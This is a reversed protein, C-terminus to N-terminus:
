LSGPRFLLRNATGAPLGSLRNLTGDNVIADRVATPSASPNGQLFRAAVGAVHSSAMSTGSITRTATDSTHWASTIGSGPAFIDVVSGHNSFSSRADASTTSGVTIAEALSAPSYHAADAGANGAAVVYTIGAAISNRVASEVASSADGGLSMNAVAPKEHNAAVWDIGAIIDSTTGAGSCDLVRVAYLRVGKAVGHASGGLTGAVHTGHGSCDNSNRGDGISDFGAFTRGAFQAHTLRIGTDIVYANVGSGTRTYTYAGNLPRNRQDIRDLGWTAGTQAASASVISDEEVLRVEPDDSLAVAEEESMEASFGTIAHAYVRTLRAAPTRMIVREARAAAASVDGAAGVGDEELVVIYHGPVRDSAARHFRPPDQNRGRGQGQAGTDHQALAPALALAGLSVSLLHLPKRM